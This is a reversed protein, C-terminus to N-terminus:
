DTKELRHYTGSAGGSKHILQINGITMGRDIAKCMDYVTLAATTCAMLAEMEVGTQSTTKVTATVVLLSQAADDVKAEAFTAIVEVKSLALPHCLPILDATKKAGMVGALEAIQLVSGKHIANTEIQERTNRLMYISAEAIATRHTVPKDSVDVMRPRGAADFHTFIQGDKLQSLTPPNLDQNMESM